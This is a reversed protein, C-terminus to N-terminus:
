EETFPSSARHPPIRSLEKQTVSPVKNLFMNWRLFFYTTAVPEVVVTRLLGPYKNYVAITVAGYNGGLDIMNVMNERNERVLGRGSLLTDLGYAKGDETQGGLRQAANDKALIRLRLPVGAYNVHIEVSEKVVKDLMEKAGGFTQLGIEYLDRPLVDVAKGLDESAKSM